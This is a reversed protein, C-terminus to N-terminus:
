KRSTGRSEGGALTARGRNFFLAGAAVEVAGVILAALWLRGLLDGLMIVVAVTAASAAIVGIGFAAAVAALGRSGGRAAEAVELQALRVENSVLRKSDTALQGVIVSLPADTDAPM